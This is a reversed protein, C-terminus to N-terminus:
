SLQFEAMRFMFKLLPDLMRLLLTRNTETNGGPANYANWADTWDYEGGQRLGMANYILYDKQIKTVDIPFLDEALGEILKFPDSPTSMTAVYAIRNMAYNRNGAAGTFLTDTFQGRQPYTATNIWIEYFDPVQYYPKWGAVDPPDLLNMQMNAASNRLNNYPLVYAPTSLAPLPIEFKRICGAILDIPSKIFCGINNEDFFHASSFLKELVPLLEYNNTRMVDALPVIVSQEVTESIDYYVFWRYLKRCFFKATEPQAFIMDILEDLEQAGAAGAKGTIIKNGFASSFAKNTADHRNSDFFSGVAPNDRGNDRWGTLVKAAAQVDQETYNTYDGQAIEPGKGITFLELLERAYNENPRGVINTNGNLYRLMAPDFSVRRVLEKVNGLSFERFLANQKYMYRSDQVDVSECVFHNHWFLVMRERLSIGQNVMLGLWWSKLYQTYTNDTQGDYPSNVWTVGNPGIPDAPTPQTAFLTSFAASLSGSAIALVEARRPGFMTRRLLHAATDVTWSGTFPELGTTTRILKRQIVPTQPSDSSSSASSSLPAFTEPQAEGTLASQLFEKRNM